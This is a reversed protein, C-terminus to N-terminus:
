RSGSEGHVGSAIMRLAHSLGCAAVGIMVSCRTGATVLAEHACRACGQRSCQGRDWVVADGLEGDSAHAMM